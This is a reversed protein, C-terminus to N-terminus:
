GAGNGQILNLGQQRPPNSKLPERRTITLAGAVKRRRCGTVESVAATLYRWKAAKFYEVQSYTPHHPLIQSYPYDVGANAFSDPICGGFDTPGVAGIFGTSGVPRMYIATDGSSFSGSQPLAEVPTLRMLKVLLNGMSIVEPLKM